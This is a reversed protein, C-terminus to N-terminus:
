GAPWVGDCTWVWSFAVSEGRHQFLGEEAVVVGEAPGGGRGSEAGSSIGVGGAVRRPCHHGPQRDCYVGCWSVKEAWIGLWCQDGGYVWCQGAAAGTGGGSIT